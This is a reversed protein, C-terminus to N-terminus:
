RSGRRLGPGTEIARGVSAVPRCVGETCEVTHCNLAGGFMWRGSPYPRLNVRDAEPRVRRTPDDALLPGVDSVAARSDDDQREEGEAAKGRPLRARERHEGLPKPVDRMVYRRGMRLARFHHGGRGRGVRSRRRVRRMPVRGVVIVLSTARVDAEVDHDGPLDHNRRRSGGDLRSGDPRPDVGRGM